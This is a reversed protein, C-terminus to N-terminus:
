VVLALASPSMWPIATLEVEAVNFVYDRWHARVYSFFDRRGGWRGELHDWQANMAAEVEADHARIYGTLAEAIPYYSWHWREEIYTYRGLADGGLYTQFFGFQLAHHRMWTWEDHLPAGPQFHRPNLGFLDFETGWHHRSIGPASSATLIERQRQPPTLAENWCRQHRTHGPRWVHGATLGCAEAARESILNFNRPHTLTFKRYWIFAQSPADRYHSRSLKRVVHRRASHSREWHRAWHRMSHAQAEGEPDHDNVDLWIESDPRAAAALLAGLMCDRQAIAERMARAPPEAAGVIWDHLVEPHHEGLLEIAHRWRARRERLRSPETLDLCGPQSAVGALELLEEVSLSSTSGEPASRERAEHPGTAPPEARAPSAGLAIAVLALLGSTRRGWSIDENRRM